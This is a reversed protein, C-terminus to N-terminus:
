KSVKAEVMIRGDEYHDIIVHHCQLGPAELEFRKVAAAIADELQILPDM